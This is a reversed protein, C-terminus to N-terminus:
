GDANGCYKVDVSDLASNKDYIKYVQVFLFRFACIDNGRKAWLIQTVSGNLQVVSKLRQM